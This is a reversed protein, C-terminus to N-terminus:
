GLKRPLAVRSSCCTSIRSRCKRIRKVMRSYCRFRLSAWFGRHRLRFARVTPTFSMWRQSEMFPQVLRSFTLYTNPLISRSRRGSLLTTTTFRAAQVVAGRLRAREIYALNAAWHGGWSVGWVVVRKSDVDQRTGLYDLVRSFMKEAGLDAKIPAEGTGPMDVAIVGIGSRFLAAGEQIVDEKRSDTGNIMFVMPAPGAVKPMRIYGVM